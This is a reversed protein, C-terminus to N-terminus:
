VTTSLAIYDPTDCRSLSLGHALNKWATAVQEPPLYPQAWAELCRRRYELDTQQICWSEYGAIWCLAKQLLERALRRECTSAPASLESLQSPMWVPLPPKTHTSFRPEFAFRGIFIAGRGIQGYWFGFGWLAVCHDPMARLIYTTAGSQEHPPRQREFGYQLLLNGEPHRVDQGWCWCQQALLQQGLRRAPRPLYLRRASKQPAVTKNM